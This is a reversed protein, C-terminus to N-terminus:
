WPMGFDSIGAAMPVNLTTARTPDENPVAASATTRCCAILWRMGPALPPTDARRGQM